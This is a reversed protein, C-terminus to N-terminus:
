LHFLLFDPDLFLVFRTDINGILTNMAEGHHYSAVGINGISKFDPRQVGATAIFDNGLDEDGSNQSVIWKFEIKSAKKILSYNLRM